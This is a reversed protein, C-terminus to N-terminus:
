HNLFQRAFFVNGQINSLLDFFLYQREFFRKGPGDNADGLVFIRPAPEQQFRANIYHRIKEAETVLKIRAKIAEKLMNKAYSVMQM